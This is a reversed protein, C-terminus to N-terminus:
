WDVALRSQRSTPRYKVHLAKNAPDYFWGAPSARLDRVELLSKGSMKVRLPKEVAAISSYLDQNAYFKLTARFTSGSSALREVLAFTSLYARGSKLNFGVSQVTTPSKEKKLAYALDCILTPGIFVPSNGEPEVGWVDTYCGALFGRETQQQTGSAFVARSVADLVPESRVALYRRVSNAWAMGCWQVPWGFWKVVYFSTGFVPITAGPNVRRRPNDYFEAPDSAVTNKGEGRSDYHVVPTEASIPPTWSYVFPVGSYAWYRAYELYREDGTLQYGMLNADVSLGASHLDPAHLPVEWTEGGRPVTFSNMKELGRLGAEIYRKNGTILARRLIQNLSVAIYGANTDGDKGLSSAEIGASEAIDRVKKHMEESERYPFGGDPAQAALLGESYSDQGASFWDLSTGMFQALQAGPAIKCKEAISPDNKRLSEGLVLAAYEPRFVCRDKLGFHTKWGNKRSDYLSETFARFCLDITGEVGHPVPPPKPMGREAFYHPVVDAITGPRAFFRFSVTIPKGPELAYARRAFESNESLYDPVSPAFLTMLHNAQGSSKNPAEFGASVFRQGRAWEAMPDWSLGVFAGNTEVAMLPVTVKYPHPVRRDALNPGCYDPSSSEEDADIYELGPFLAHAKASGFSGEGALLRPGEFRLVDMPATAKMECTLLGDRAGEPLKFTWRITGVGPERTEVVVTNGDASVVTDPRLEVYRFSGAGDRFALTALPRFVGMPVARGNILASLRAESGTIELEAAQNAMRALRRDSASPPIVVTSFVVKGESQGVARVRDQGAPVELSCNVSKGPDIAGTRQAGVTLDPQREGGENVIRLRLVSGADTRVVSPRDVRIRPPTQYLAIWDIEIEAQQERGGNAPDLRLMSLRGQWSPLKSMPIEYFHFRGDGIVTISADGNAAPDPSKDTVFYVQNSGPASSRMRLGLFGCKSVDDVDPSRNLIWPDFGTNRFSIAGNRVTLASVNHDPEWGEASNDFQWLKVIRSGLLEAPEAACLARTLFILLVIAALRLLM